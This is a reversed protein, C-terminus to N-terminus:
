RNSEVWKQLDGKSTRNLLKGEKWNIEPYAAELDACAKQISSGGSTAFPIVTKGKFDYTELFTNIITPATYWWIPFGVYVVNYEHMNLLKSSIAPRSHKDQMEVSSRSQKNQWDLDADTYPQEPKIEYLDAGAVEALQRAAAKTTGTASFYAVLVKQEMKTETKKQSCASLSVVLLATLMMIIKKM